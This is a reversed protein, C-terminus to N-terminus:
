CRTRVQTVFEAEPSRKRTRDNSAGEEGLPRHGARQRRRGVVLRREAQGVEGVRQRFDVHGDHGARGGDRVRRLLDATRKARWACSPARRSSSTPAITGNGDADVRTFVVRAAAAIQRRRRFSRRASRRRPTSPAIDICRRTIHIRVDAPSANALDRASMDPARPLGAPSM